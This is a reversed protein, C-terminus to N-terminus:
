PEKLKKLRKGQGASAEKLKKLIGQPKARSDWSKEVNGGSNRGVKGPTEWTPNSIETRQDNRIDFRDIFTKLFILEEFAAFATHDASFSAYFAPLIHSTCWGQKRGSGQSVGHHIRRLL